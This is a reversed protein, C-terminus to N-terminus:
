GVPGKKELVLRIDDFNEFPCFSANNSKCYDELYSGVKAFLLDAYPIAEVDSTGDGIHVLSGNQKAAALLKRKDHSEDKRYDWGEPTVELRHAYVPLELHGIFLQIVPKM